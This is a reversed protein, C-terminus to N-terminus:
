IEKTDYFIGGKRKLTLAAKGSNYYAGPQRNERANRAKAEVGMNDGATKNFYRPAAKQAGMWYNAQQTNMPQGGSLTAGSELAAQVQRTHYLEYQGNRPNRILTKGGDPSSTIIRRNGSATNPSFIKGAEPRYPAAPTIPAAVPQVGTPTGTPTGVKKVPDTTNFTNFM